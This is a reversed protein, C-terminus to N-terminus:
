YGRPPNVSDKDLLVKLSNAYGQELNEKLNMLGDLRGAMGCVVGHNLWSDSNTVNDRAIEICMDIVQMVARRQGDSEPVNMAYALEMDSLNGDPFVRPPTKKAAKKVAAKKKTAKKAM